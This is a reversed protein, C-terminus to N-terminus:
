EHYDLSRRPFEHAAELLVSLDVLQYEGKSLDYLLYEPTGKRATKDSSVKKIRENVKKTNIVYAVPLFDTRVAMKITTIIKDRTKEDILKKRLMEEAGYLIGAVNRNIQDSHRDLTVVGDIFEKAITLPDSSAAQKKRNHFDYAIWLYHKCKYYDCDVNYAMRSGVSFLFPHKDEDVTKKSEM